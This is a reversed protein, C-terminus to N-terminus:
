HSSPSLFTIHSIKGASQIAVGIVALLSFLMVLVRRDIRFSIGSSRIVLWDAKM